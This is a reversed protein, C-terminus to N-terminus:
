VVPPDFDPGGETPPAYEVYEVEVAVPIGFRAELRNRLDTALDDRPGGSADVVVTLEFTEGFYLADELDTSETEVLRVGDYEPTALTSAVQDHMREEVTVSGYSFASVGALVLSLVVLVTIMGAIRLATVRRAFATLDAEFPRYGSVWLLALAVFNIALLNVVTLLFAGLASLPYNWALMIGTTAAPPILAVAILAGVLAQGVDRTLSVVAAVGAGLAIVLSFLDPVLREQIIPIERVDVSPSVLFTEHALWAFAAAGLISLAIGALQLGIGRWYLEREATVTGVATSIAPGLVPAIIMAGIVVASSDLFLGATAVVSSVLTMVVFTSLAPALENARAAMEEGSIAKSGPRRDVGTGKKSVVTEPETVVTYASEDIGAANLRDLVDTLADTSLPFTVVAVYEPRGVEPTVAYDIGEEDLLELIAGRKGTPIPVEVFRM